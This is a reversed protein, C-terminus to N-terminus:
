RKRSEWKDVADAIMRRIEQTGIRRLEYESKISITKCRKCIVSFYRGNYDRSSWGLCTLSTVLHMKKGQWGIQECLRAKFPENSRKRSNM